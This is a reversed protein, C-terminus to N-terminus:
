IARYIQYEMGNNFRIGDEEEFDSPITAYLAEHYLSVAYAVKLEDSVYIATALDLDDPFSKPQGLLGSYYPFQKLHRKTWYYAFVIEEDNALAKHLDEMSQIDHALEYKTDGVEIANPFMKAMQVTKDSVEELATVGDKKPENKKKGLTSKKASKKTDVKEEKPEDAPAEEVPEAPTEEAKQKKSVGKSLKKVSNEAVPTAPTEETVELATVKTKDGLVKVTEKALDLLEKKTVKSDDEHAVKGTYMMRDYLNKDKVKVAKANDNIFQKLQEKTAKATIKM